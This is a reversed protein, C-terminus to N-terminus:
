YAKVAISQEFTLNTTPHMGQSPGFDVLQGGRAFTKSSSTLFSENLVPIYGLQPASKGARTNVGPPAIGQHGQHKFKTLRSSDFLVRDIEKTNTVQNTTRKGWNSPISGYNRQQLNYGSGSTGLEDSKRRVESMQIGHNVYPAHYNNNHIGPQRGPLVHDEKETDGYDAVNPRTPKSLGRIMPTRAQFTTDKSLRMEASKARTATTNFEVQSSIQPIRRVLINKRQTDWAADSSKQLEATGYALKLPALQKGNIQTTRVVNPQYKSQYEKRRYRSLEYGDRESAPPVMDVGTSFSRTINGNADVFDNRNPRYRKLIDNVTVDTARTTYKTNGIEPERYDVSEHAPMWMNKRLSPVYPRNGSPLAPVNHHLADERSRFFQDQIALPQEPDALLVDRNVTTSPITPITPDEVNTTNADMSESGTIIQSNLAEKHTRTQKDILYGTGLLTAFIPVIEM